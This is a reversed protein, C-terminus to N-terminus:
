SRSPHWLKTQHGIRVEPVRLDSTHYAQWFQRLGNLAFKGELPTFEDFIMRECALMKSPMLSLPFSSDVPHLFRPTAFPKRRVIRLEPRRGVVERVRRVNNVLM